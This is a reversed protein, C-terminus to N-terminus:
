SNFNFTISSLDIFYLPLKINVFEIQKIEKFALGELNDSGRMMVQGSELKALTLRELSKFRTLSNVPVSPNDHLWLVRLSPLDVAPFPGNIRNNSLDLTHLNTCRKLPSSIKQVTSSKFKLNGLHLELLEQPVSHPYFNLILFFIKFCM